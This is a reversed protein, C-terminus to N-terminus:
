SLLQGEPPFNRSLLQENSLAPGQWVLVEAAGASLAMEHFARVEVQTFGGVPNGTLHVVVLPAVTLFSKQLVKPLLSKLLLEGATFDSVMSRPHAFPRVLVADPGLLSSTAASGAAIPKRSTGQSMLVQAPENVTVGSKANRLVVTDPAVQIYVTPKLAGLM